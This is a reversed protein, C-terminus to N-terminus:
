SAEDAYKSLEEYQYQITKSFCYLSHFWQGNKPRRQIFPAWALVNALVATPLRTDDRLKSHPGPRIEGPHPVWIKV